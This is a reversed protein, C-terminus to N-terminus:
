AQASGEAALKAARAMRLESLRQTADAFFALMRLYLEANPGLAAGACFSESLLLYWHEIDDADILRRPRCEEPLGAIEYPSWSALYDNVWATLAKASSLSAMGDQWDTM